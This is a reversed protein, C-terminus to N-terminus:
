NKLLQMKIMKPIAKTLAKEAWYIDKLEEEFLKMLQSPPMGINTNEKQTGNSGSKRKSTSGNAGSGSKSKTTNM